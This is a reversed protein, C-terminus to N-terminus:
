TDNTDGKPIDQEAPGAYQVGKTFGEQPSDSLAADVKDAFEALEKSIGCSNYVELFERLLGEMSDVPRTAKGGEAYGDCYGQEIRNHLYQGSATGKDIDPHDEFWRDRAMAIPSRTDSV